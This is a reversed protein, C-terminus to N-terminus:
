EEVVVVEFQHAKKEKMLRYGQSEFYDGYCYDNCHFYRHHVLQCSAVVVALM